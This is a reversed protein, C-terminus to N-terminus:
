PEGGARRPPTGLKLVPKAQNGAPAPAARAKAERKWREHQAELRQRAGLAHEPSVPETTGDIGHRLAGHRRLARLYRGTATWRRMMVGLRSRDAQNMGLAEAIGDSIGLALPMPDDPDMLRRLEGPWAGALLADLEAFLGPLPSAFAPDAQPPHQARSDDAADHQRSITAARTALGPARARL